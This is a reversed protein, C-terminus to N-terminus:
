RCNVHASLLLSEEGCLVLEKDLFGVSRLNKDEEAVEDLVVWRMQM